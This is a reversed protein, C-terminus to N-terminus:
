ELSKLLERRVPWLARVRKGSVEFKGSALLGTLDNPSPRQHERALEATLMATSRALQDKATVATAPNHFDATLSLLFADQSSHAAELALVVSDASQLSIAFIRVPLPLASPNLLVARSPQLWVPAVSPAALANANPHIENLASNSLALVDPQIERIQDSHIRSWDFRGRAVLWIHQGDIAAALADLDRTYDFGTTRIFAAYDDAPRANSLLNLYGARRLTAVDAYFLTRDAAPLLQLLEADSRVFRYRYRRIGFFAAIAVLLALATLLWWRYKRV